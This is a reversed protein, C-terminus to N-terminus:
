GKAEEPSAVNLYDLAKLALPMLVSFIQFEDIRSGRHAVRNRQGIMERCLKPTIEVDGKITNVWEAGIAKLILALKEHRPEATLQPQRLFHKLRDLKGAGVGSKELIMEIEEASYLQNYLPRFQDRKELEELLVFWYIYKSKAQGARMGDAFIKTLPSVQLAELKEATIPV